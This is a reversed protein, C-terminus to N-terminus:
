SCFSSRGEFSAEGECDNDDTVTVTYLGPNVVTITGSSQNDSWDYQAFNEIVNLMAEGGPCLTMDGDINPEPSPFLNVEASTNNSCDNSDTVTLSYSGAGTVTIDEGNDNTSWLYTTYGATGSLTGSSNDCISFDGTIEVDPLSNEVVSISTSNECMNADTVTVMIDAGSSVTISETDAGTSWNINTFTGGTATLTVDDGACFETDGDISPTPLDYIDFEHSVMASCNNDDIVTVTYTAATSVNLTPGSDGTSWEYNAFGASATLDTDAGICVADLGDITPAPATFEQVEVSAEGSCGDADEVTLAYTGPTDAFIVTVGTQNNSWSYAAYGSPGTLTTGGDEPCYALDGGIMFDIPPALTVDHSTTGECQNSDTVTVSYTDPTTVTVTNGTETTSWVYEDFVEPVMLDLSGAGCIVSEGVITPEPLAAETIIISAEGECDSADTVTVTYTGVMNVDISEVDESSSWTYTTYGSPAAITTSQGTCFYDQGSITFSIGDSETVDVSATGQCGNSDTVIVSVTGTTSVTNTSSIGGPTWNYSSYSQSLSLTTSGNECFTLAGEITPSVEANEGISFSTSRMCGNADELTVSYNGPSLNSFTVSTGSDTGSDPGSLTFTYPAQATVELLILKAMTKTLVPM